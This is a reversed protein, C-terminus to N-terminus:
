IMCSKMEEPLTGFGFLAEPIRGGNPWRMAKGAFNVAYGDALSEIMSGLLVDRMHPTVFLAARYNGSLCNLLAESWGVSRDTDRIVTFKKSLCTRMEASVRNNVYVTKSRVKKPPQMLSTRIVKTDTCRCIYSRTDPALVYLTHHAPFYVLAVSIRNHTVLAINISYWSSGNLYALTGDIPDIVLTTDTNQSTFLKTSPTDEEADLGVFKEGLVSHASLLLKEQIQEDIITKARGRQLVFESDSHLMEETDSKGINQVTDQSTKAFQGAALVVPTIKQVFNQLYDNTM